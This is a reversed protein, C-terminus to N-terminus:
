WEVQSCCFVCSTKSIGLIVYIKVGKDSYSM